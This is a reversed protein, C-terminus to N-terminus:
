LPTSCDFITFYIGYIGLSVCSRFFLVVPQYRVLELTRRAQVEVNRNELPTYYNGNKVIGRSITEVGNEKAKSYIIRAENTVVAYM